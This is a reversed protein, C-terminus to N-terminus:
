GCVPVACWVMLKSCETLLYMMGQVGNQVTVVNVGLKESSVLIYRVSVM